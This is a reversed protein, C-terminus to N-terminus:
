YKTRLKRSTQIKEQIKVYKKKPQKHITASSYRKNQLDTSNVGQLGWIDDYKPNKQHHMM